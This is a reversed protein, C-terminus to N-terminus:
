ANSSTDRASSLGLGSAHVRPLQKEWLHPTEGVASGTILGPLRAAQVLDNALGIGRGGKGLWIGNDM